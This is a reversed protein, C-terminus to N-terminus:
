DENRWHMSLPHCKHNGSANGSSHLSENDPAAVERVLFRFLVLFERCAIEGLIFIEADGESREPAM